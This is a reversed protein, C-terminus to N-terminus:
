NEENAEYYGRLSLLESRIPLIKEYLIRYAEYIEMSRMSNTASMSDKFFNKSFTKFLSFHEFVLFAIKDILIDKDVKNLKSKKIEEYCYIFYKMAMLVKRLTVSNADVFDTRLRTVQLNQSYKFNLFEFATRKKGKNDTDILDEWFQNTQRFIDLLQEKMQVYDRAKLELSLFDFNIINAKMQARFSLYVLFAGILNIIPSTIGGITDGIEGTHSFDVIGERTFIWPGVLMFLLGFFLLYKGAKDVSQFEYASQSRNFLNLKKM